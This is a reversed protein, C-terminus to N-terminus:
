QTIISSCSIPCYYRGIEEALNDIRKRIDDLNHHGYIWYEPDEGFREDAVKEWLDEQFSLFGRLQRIEAQTQSHEYNLWALYAKKQSIM